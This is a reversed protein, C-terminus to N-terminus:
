EFKPFSFLRGLESNDEVKMDSNNDDLNLSSKTKELKEQIYMIIQNVTVLKEGNESIQNYWQLVDDFADNRGKKHKETLEMNNALETMMSKIKDEDIEKQAKYAKVQEQLSDSENITKEFYEFDEKTLISLKNFLEIIQDYKKQIEPLEKQDIKNIVFTVLSDLMNKLEDSM